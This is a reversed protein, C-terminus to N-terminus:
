ATLYSQIMFIMLCTLFIRMKLSSQLKEKLMKYMSIAQYRGSGAGSPYDGPDDWTEIYPELTESVVRM